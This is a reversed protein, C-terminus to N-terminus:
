PEKEEEKLILLGFNFESSFRASHPLGTLSLLIIFLMISAEGSGVTTKVARLSKLMNRPLELAEEALLPLASARRRSKEAILLSEDEDSESGEGM